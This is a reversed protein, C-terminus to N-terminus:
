FFLFFSTALSPKGHILLTNQQVFDRHAIKFFPGELLGRLCLLLQHLSLLLSLVTAGPCLCEHVDASGPLSCLLGVSPGCCEHSM